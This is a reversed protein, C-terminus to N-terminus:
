QCRAPSMRVPPWIDLLLKPQVVFFTGRTQGSCAVPLWLADISSPAGEAVKYLLPSGASQKKFIFLSILHELCPEQSPQPDPGACLLLEIFQEISSPSCSNM